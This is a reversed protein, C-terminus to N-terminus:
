RDKPLKGALGELVRDFQAHVSAADPQDYVSHLLAKFDLGVAVEPHYGDPEGRLPDPVAALVRGAVHGRHGAILGAHADSTM